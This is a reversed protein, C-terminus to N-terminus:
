RRVWIQPSQKLEAVKSVLIKRVQERITAIGGYLRLQSKRADRHIYLKSTHSLRSLYLLADTSGFFSHWLPAGDHKIDTGALLKELQAKVKAVLNPADTGNAEIRLTRVPGGNDKSGPLILRVRHEMSSQRQLEVLEPLLVMVMRSPVNFKINISSRVSLRGIDEHHSGNLEQVATIANKPDSFSASLCFTSRAPDNNFSCSKLEGFSQLLGQVVERSEDPPASLLPERIKIKLPYITGLINKFWEEGCEAELNRVELTSQNNRNNRGLRRVVCDLNRGSPTTTKLLLEGAEHLLDLDNYTLLAMGAPRYWSCIVSDNQVWKGYKHKSPIEINTVEAGIGFTIVAGCIKRVCTTGDQSGKTRENKTLALKEIERALEQAIDAINHDYVAQWASVEEESVTIEQDIHGPRAPVIHLYECSDGFRCAGQQLFQCRSRM